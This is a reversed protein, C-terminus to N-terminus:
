ENGWDKRAILQPLGISDVAKGTREISDTLRLQHIITTKM